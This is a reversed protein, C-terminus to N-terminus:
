HDESESDSFSSLSTLSLIRNATLAAQTTSTFRQKHKTGTEMTVQVGSTTQLFFVTRSATVTESFAALSKWTFRLPRHRTTLDRPLVLFKKHVHYRTTMQTLRQTNSWCTASAWTPLTFSTDVSTASLHKCSLPARPVPWKHPPWCSM